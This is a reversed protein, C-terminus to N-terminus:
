RKALAAFPITRATLSLPHRQHPALIVPHSSAQRKLEVNPPTNSRRTLQVWGAASPRHGRHTQTPADIQRTPCQIGLRAGSAPTARTVEAVVFAASRVDPLSSITGLPVVNGHRSGVGVLWCCRWVLSRIARYIGQKRGVRAGRREREAHSSGHLDCRLIM